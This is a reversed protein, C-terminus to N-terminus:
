EILFDLQAEPIGISKGYAVSDMWTSRDSHKITFIKQKFVVIVDDSGSQWLHVYWPGPASAKALDSIQIESVLVDHLTWEGDQRTNEITVKALISKDALSNEVITAKYIAM